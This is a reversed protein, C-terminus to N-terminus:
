NDLRSGFRGAALASVLGLDRARAMIAAISIGFRMKLDCLENITLQEMSTKDEDTKAINM